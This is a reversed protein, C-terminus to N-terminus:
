EGDGGAGRDGADTGETEDAAAAGFADERTLRDQDDRGHVLGAAEVLKLTVNWARESPFGMYSDGEPTIHETWEDRSDVTGFILAAEKLAWYPMRVTGDDDVQADESRADPLYIPIDFGLSRLHEVGRAWQESTARSTESPDREGVAILAMEVPGGFGGGKASDSWVGESVDVYNATGNCGPGAWTPTFSPGAGSTGTAGETWSKVITRNAVEVADLRDLTATVESAVTTISTGDPTTTRLSDGADRRQELRRFEAFQRARREQKARHEREREEEVLADVMARWGDNHSGDAHKAILDPFLTGVLRDLRDGDEFDLSTFRECWQRVEARLDDDVADVPTPDGYEVSAPDLPVVVGDYDAHIALPAKYPRNTNNAYDVDLLNMDAAGTRAEVAVFERELYDNVAANLASFVRARADRDDRFHRAIPYTVGPPTMVYGGGVSDLLFVADRGVLEGVVDSYGEYTEAVTAAKEDTWAVSRQGREAKLDNHLDIDAWVSYAVTKDWGATPKAQPGGKYDYGGSGSEARSCAVWGVAGPENYTTTSYFTRLGRWEDVTEDYDDFTRGRREKEFRGVEDDAPSRNPRTVYWGAKDPNLVTPNSRYFGLPAVADAAQKYHMRVQEDTIRTM